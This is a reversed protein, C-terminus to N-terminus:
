VCFEARLTCTGLAGGQCARGTERGGPSYEVTMVVRWGGCRGRPAQIVSGDLADSPTADHDAQEPAWGSQPHEFERVDSMEADVHGKREMSDV